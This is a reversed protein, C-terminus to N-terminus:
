VGAVAYLHRHMENVQDSSHQHGHVMTALAKAPLYDRNHVNVPMTLHGVSGHGSTGGVLNHTAVHEGNKMIHVRGPVSGSGESRHISIRHGDHSRFTMSTLM